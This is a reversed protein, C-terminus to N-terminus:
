RSGSPLQTKHLRKLRNCMVRELSDPYNLGHERALKPAIELYFDVIVLAAQLMAKEELPVLTARLASLADAAVAQEIKEYDSAEAYFDARLRALNVCIRRLVELQGQAWWLQGRGMATIFHSLDHWFWMIQRRLVETQEIQDAQHWPFVAGELIGKKDVLVEYLGGHIHDFQSERGLGLEGETGDTYIFLVLDFGYDSVDELFVPEGLRRIFAEREAFFDQYATDTIIMYLDLDSYADVAGKAYSGGLFAALVREDARCAAVFRDILAQHHQPLDL